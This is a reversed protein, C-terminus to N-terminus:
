NIKIKLTNKTDWFVPIVLQNNSTKKHNQIRTGNVSVRRPNTKLNHIILNIQKSNPMFNLGNDSKFIIVIKGKKVSTDFFSFNYNNKFRIITQIKHWIRFLDVKNNM